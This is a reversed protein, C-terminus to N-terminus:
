QGTSASATVALKIMEPNDGPFFLYADTDLNTYGYDQRLISQYSDPMKSSM